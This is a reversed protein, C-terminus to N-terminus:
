RVPAFVNDPLEGAPGALVSGAEARFAALERAHQENLTTQERVWRVARDFDARAENAIGWGTTPWPWSSCTSATSSAM